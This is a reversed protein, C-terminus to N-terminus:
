EYESYSLTSPVLVPVLPPIALPPSSTPVSITRPFCRPLLFPHPKWPVCSPKGYPNCHKWATFPQVSLSTLMSFYCCPM